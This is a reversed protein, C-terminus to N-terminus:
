SSKEEGNEPRVREGESFAPSPNMVVRDGPRIIDGMPNWAATGYHAADLQLLRLADRVAAYAHNPEDSVCSPYAYEPFATDPHFPAMAPYVAEGCRVVGVNPELLSNANM